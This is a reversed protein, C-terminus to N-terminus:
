RRIRAHTPRGPFPQSRSPGTSFSGYFFPKTTSSECDGLSARFWGILRVSISCVGVFIRNELGSATYLSYVLPPRLQESRSNSRTLFSM